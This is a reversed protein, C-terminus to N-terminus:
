WWGGLMPPFADREDLLAKLNRAETLAHDRQKVVILLANQKSALRDELERIVRQLDITSDCGCEEPAPKNALLLRETARSAAAGSARNM